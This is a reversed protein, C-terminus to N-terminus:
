AKPHAAIRWGQVQQDSGPDALEALAQQEEDTLAAPPQDRQRRAGILIALLGVLLLAPAAFWLLVTHLALVPKLLVFEGYRDVIYQRVQANTDGKKVRDRVLVRLEHALDANSAEISENQCVLCRLEQGITQARAELVPDALMEGPNVAWAFTPGLALLAFLVFRACFRIM